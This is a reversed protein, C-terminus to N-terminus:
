KAREASVTVVSVMPSSAASTLTGVASPSIGAGQLRVAGIVFVIAQQM